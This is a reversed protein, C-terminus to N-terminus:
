CRSSDRIQLEIERYLFHVGRTKLVSDRDHGYDQQNRVRPYPLGGTLGNWIIQNFLVAPVRGEQSWDFGRTKSAWYAAPQADRYTPCSQGQHKPGALEKQIPEPAVARYTWTSQNLDFISTMPRQYEANLTLHGPGLVDEITRVFNATAYREHVVSGQRVYPGAVFAVTRHANVHDPGSQADDEIILILTSSACPSHAVRDILKGVAYDNDATENEPVGISQPYWGTPNLAVVRHAQGKTLSIVAVANM